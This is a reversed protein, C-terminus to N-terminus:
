EVVRLAQPTILSVSFLFEPREQTRVTQSAQLKPTLMWDARENNVEETCLRSHNNFQVAIRMADIAATM